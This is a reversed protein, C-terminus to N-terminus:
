STRVFDLHLSTATSTPLTLRVTVQVMMTLISLILPSGMDLYEGLDQKVSELYLNALRLRKQAATENEFEDGSANEDIDSERLDLDDINGDDDDSATHASDLEEDKRRKKNSSTSPKSNKSFSKRTSSGSPVRKRKTTKAFFADGKAM